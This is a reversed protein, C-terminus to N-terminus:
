CSHNPICQLLLTSLVSAPHQEIADSLLSTQSVQNAHLTMALEKLPTSPVTCYETDDSPAMAEHLLQCATADSGQPLVPERKSAPGPTHTSHHEYDPPLKSLLEEQRAGLLLIQGAPVAAMSCACTSRGAREHHKHTALWGAAGYMQAVLHQMLLVAKSSVEFSLKAAHSTQLCLELEAKPTM